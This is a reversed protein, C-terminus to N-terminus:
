IECQDSDIASYNVSYNMKYKKNSYDSNACKLTDCNCKSAEHPRACTYCMVKNMCKKGGHGYGACKNCPNTNIIYYARRNQYGIILKSKNEKIHKYTSSTVEM